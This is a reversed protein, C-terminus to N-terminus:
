QEVVEYRNTAFVSGQMATLHDDRRCQMRCFKRSIITFIMVSSDIGNNVGARDGVEISM